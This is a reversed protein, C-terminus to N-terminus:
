EGYILENVAAYHAKQFEIDMDSISVMKKTHESFKERFLDGIERGAPSVDGVDVLEGNLFIKM